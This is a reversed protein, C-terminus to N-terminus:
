SSSNEAANSGIISAASTSELREAKNALEFFKQAMQILLAKDNPDSMREALELCEAAHLRYEAETISPMRVRGGSIGAM